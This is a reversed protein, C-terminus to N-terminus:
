GLLARWLSQRGTVFRTRGTADAPAAGHLRLRLLRASVTTGDAMLRPAPATRSEICARMAVTGGRLTLIGCASDAPADDHATPLIAWARGAEDIATDLLLARDTTAGTLFLLAGAVFAFLMLGVVQWSLPVALSVDGELAAGRGAMAERRFLAM